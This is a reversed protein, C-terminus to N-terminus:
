LRYNIRCLKKEKNNGGLVTVTFQCDARLGCGDTATVTVTSVGIGFMATVLNSQQTNFQVTGSQYNVTPPGSNDSAIAAQFTVQTNATGCTGGSRM